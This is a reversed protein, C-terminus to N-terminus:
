FFRLLVGTELDQSTYKVKQPGNNKGSEKLSPQDQLSTVHCATGSPVGARAPSFYSTEVFHARVGVKDACCKGGQCPSGEDVDQPTNIPSNSDLPLAKGSPLRCRVDV